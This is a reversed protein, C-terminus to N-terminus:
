PSPPFLRIWGGRHDMEFKEREAEDYLIPEQALGIMSFLDRMSALQLPRIQSAEENVYPFENIEFVVPQGRESIGLDARMYSFCSAGSAAIGANVKHQLWSPTARHIIRSLLTHAAPLLMDRTDRPMKAKTAYQEFTLQRKDASLGGDCSGRGSHAHTDHMCKNTITSTTKNYKSGALVIWAQSYAYLRLAPFVSTVALFIRLESKRKYVADTRSGIWPHVYPMVLYERKDALVKSPLDSPTRAYSIGKGAHLDLNPGDRKVVWLDHGRM